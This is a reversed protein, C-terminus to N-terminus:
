PIVIERYEEEEEEIAKYFESAKIEQLFDPIEFGGECELSGYLTTGIEFLRESWRGGYIRLYNWMRPKEMHELDAVLSCWEKAIPSNKKFQRKDSKKMQSAFKVADNETPDIILVEKHPYLGTAEIGHKEKITRFAALVKKKDECYDFFDKYLKSEENVKFYIKM